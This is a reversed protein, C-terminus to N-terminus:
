KMANVGRIVESASVTCDKFQRDFRKQLWGTFTACCDNIVICECGKRNAAEVTKKICLSATFGCILFTKVGTWYLLEDFDSGEFLNFTYRGELVIDGKVYTGETFEAKWTDKTFFGANSINALFGKKNQPDQIIPAHVVMLNRSRWHKLLELTNGTVNRKELESRILRHYLGRETWQKQFENLVLMTNNLEIQKGNNLVISFPGPAQRNKNM